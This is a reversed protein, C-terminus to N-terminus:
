TYLVIQIVCLAAPRIIELQLAGGRIAVVNCVASLFRAFGNPMNRVKRTIASKASRTPWHVEATAAAAEM